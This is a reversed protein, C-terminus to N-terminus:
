RYRRALLKCTLYFPLYTVLIYKIINSVFYAIYIIIFEKTLIVKGSDVLPKINHVSSATWIIMLASVIFVLYIISENKTPTRKNDKVFSFGAITSSIAMAILNIGKGEIGVVLSL